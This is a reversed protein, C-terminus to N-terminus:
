EDELERRDAYQQMLEQYEEESRGIRLFNIVKIDPPTESIGRVWDELFLMYKRDNVSQFRPHSRIHTVTGM